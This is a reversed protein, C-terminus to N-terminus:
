CLWSAKTSTAMIAPFSSSQQDAGEHICIIPIPLWGYASEHRSLPLRLFGRQKGAQRLRNESLIRSM